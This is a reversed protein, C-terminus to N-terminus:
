RAPNATLYSNVFEAIQGLASQKIAADLSINRPVFASYVQAKWTTANVGKGNRYLRVPQGLELLGVIANGTNTPIVSLRYSLVGSQVLTEIPIGLRLVEVPIRAKRLEAEILTRIGVTDASSAGDPGWYGVTLYVRPLGVLSEPSEQLQASASAFPLILSFCLARFYPITQSM